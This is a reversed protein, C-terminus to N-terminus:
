VRFGLCESVCELVCEKDERQVERMRGGRLNPMGAISMIERSQHTYSIATSMVPHSGLAWAARLTPPMQTASLVQHTPAPLDLPIPHLLSTLRSSIPPFGEDKVHEMSRSSALM